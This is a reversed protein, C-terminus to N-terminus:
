HRIISPLFLFIFRLVLISGRHYNAKAEIYTYTLLFISLIIVIVDWRPFILRTDPHESSKPFFALASLERSPIPRKVWRPPITGRRFPSWRPSRYFACRSPMHLVSRWVAGVSLVGFKKQVSSWFVDLRVQPCHQREYCVVNCEHVRDHQAGARVAHSRPVERRHRVWKTCRGRCKGLTRYQEPTGDILV